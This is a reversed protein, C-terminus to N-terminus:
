VDLSLIRPEYVYRTYVFFDSRLDYLQGYKLLNECLIFYIRGFIHAFEDLPNILAPLGFPTNPLNAASSILNKKCLCKLHFTVRRLALKRKLKRKQKKLAM